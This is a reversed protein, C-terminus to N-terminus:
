KQAKYLTTYTNFLPMPVIYSCPFIFKNYIERLNVSICLIIIFLTQIIKYCTAITKKIPIQPRYRMKPFSYSSSM